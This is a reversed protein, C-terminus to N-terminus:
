RRLRSTPLCPPVLNLYPLSLHFSTLHPSTAPPARTHVFATHLSRKHSPQTLATTSTGSRAQHFDSPCWAVATVEGQHGSLVYPSAGDPADVQLPVLSFSATLALLSSLSPALVPRHKLALM